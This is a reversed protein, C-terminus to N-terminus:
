EVVKPVSFMNHASEPANALILNAYHGDEVIDLREYMEQQNYESYLPINTVDVKSLQDIWEFISSLDQSIKELETENTEIRALTAIRKIDTQSLVAPAGFFSLPVYKM